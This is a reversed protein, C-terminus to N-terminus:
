SPSTVEKGTMMVTSPRAAMKPRSRRLTGPPMRITIMAMEMRPRMKSGFTVQCPKKAMGLRVPSFPESTPLMSRSPARLGTTIGVTSASTIVATNSAVPVM